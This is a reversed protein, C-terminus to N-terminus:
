RGHRVETSLQAFERLRSGFASKERIVAAQCDGAQDFTMAQLSAVYAAVSQEVDDIHDHEHSLSSLNKLLIWPRFTAVARMSWGGGQQGCAAELRFGIFHTCADFPGAAGCWEYLHKITPVVRIIPAEITVFSDDGAAFGGPVRFLLLLVIFTWASVPLRM